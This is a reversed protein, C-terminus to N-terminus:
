AKKAAKIGAKVKRSLKKGGKKIERSVKRGQKALSRGLKLTDKQYTTVAVAAVGGIVMSLADM